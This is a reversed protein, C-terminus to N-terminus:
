HRISDKYNSNGGDIVTDGKGLLNSLKEITDDTAQGAPLMMWVVRPAKLKNVVEELSHAGAAGETEAADVSAKSRAFAVVHHGGKMLRIAMNLGMKGLGIMALEM